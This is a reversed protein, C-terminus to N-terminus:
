RDTWLSMEEEMVRYIYDVLLGVKLFPSTKQSMAKEDALILSVELEDEIAQEIMVIISVLGLSDLIGDKGYLPTDERLEVPIKEEYTANFEEITTFVIKSIKDRM